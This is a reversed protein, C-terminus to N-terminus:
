RSVRRRKETIRPRPPTIRLPKKSLSNRSHSEISTKNLVPLRVVDVWNKAEYDIKAVEAPTKGYLSHHPKFYNYYVLYGDMFQHLTEINRFSRMVKTRDKITGHFREIQSTSEGSATDNKKPQIDIGGKTISKTIDLLHNYLIRRNITIIIM